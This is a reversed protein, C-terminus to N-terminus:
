STPPPLHTPLAPPPPPPLPSTPPAPAEPAPGQEGTIMLVRDAVATFPAPDLRSPVCLVIGALREPHPTGLGSIDRPIAPGFYASALGRHDMLAVVRDTAPMDPGQMPKGGRARGGVPVLEEM